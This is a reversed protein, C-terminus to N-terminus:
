PLNGVLADVLEDPRVDLATGAAMLDAVARERDDPSLALLTVLPAPDWRRHVVCQFRAGDRTRRQSIGVLKRGEVVLEGPGVGAFCVRRSWRSEALAGEHAHGDVGFRAVAARWADGLWDFSRRVDDDWLADAKALEIDIWITEGPVLLVAGGGSRRRVVDVVAAAAASADIDSAPQTSGLVLARREIELVTVARHVHPGLPRAHLDAAAGRVRAVSWGDTM